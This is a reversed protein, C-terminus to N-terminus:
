AGALKVDEDVDRCSILNGATMKWMLPCFCHKQGLGGCRHLNQVTTELVWCKPARSATWIGSASILKVDEAVDRCSILNGATMKWM